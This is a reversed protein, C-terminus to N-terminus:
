VVELSVWHADLQPMKLVEGLADLTMKKIEEEYRKAKTVNPFINEVMKARSAPQNIINDFINRLVDEFNNKDILAGGANFYKQIGDEFLLKANETLIRHNVLKLLHFDIAKEQAIMEALAREKFWRMAQSVFVTEQKSSERNTPTDKGDRFM